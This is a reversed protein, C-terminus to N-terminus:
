GYPEVVEDRGDLLDMDLGEVLELVRHDGGIVESLHSSWRIPWKTSWARREPAEQVSM